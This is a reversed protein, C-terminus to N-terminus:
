VLQDKVAEGYDSSYELGGGSRESISDAILHKLVFLPASGSPILGSSSFTLQSGRTSRYRFFKIVAQSSLRKGEEHNSAM